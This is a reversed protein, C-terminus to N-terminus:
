PDHTWKIIPCSLWERSTVLRGRSLAAALRSSWRPASFGAAHWRRRFGRRRVVLCHWTNCQMPSRRKRWRWIVRRIARWRGVVRRMALRGWIVCCLRRRQWLWQLLLAVPLGRRGRVFPLRRGSWGLRRRRVCYGRWCRWRVGRRRSGIWRQGTGHGRAV